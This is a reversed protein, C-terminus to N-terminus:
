TFFRSSDELVAKNTKIWTSMIKCINWLFANNERELRNLSIPTSFESISFTRCIVHGLGSAVLSWTMLSCSTHNRFSGSPDEQLELVLFSTQPGRRSDKCMKVLTVRVPYLWLVQLWNKELALKAEAKHPQHAEDLEMPPSAPPPPTFSPSSLIRQSESSSHGPAEGGRVTMVAVASSYDTVEKQASAGPHRPWVVKSSPDRSPFTCYQLWEGIRIAWANSRQTCSSAHVTTNATSAARSKVEVAQQLCLKHTCIGAPKCHCQQTDQELPSRSVRGDLPDRLLPCVLESTQLRKLFSVNRKGFCFIIYM